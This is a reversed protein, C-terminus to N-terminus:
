SWRTARRIAEVEELNPAPAARLRDVFSALAVGRARERADLTRLEALAGRRVLEALTPMDDGLRERLPRLVDALEPTETISHRPHSTPVLLLTAGHLVVLDCLQAARPAVVEIPRSM